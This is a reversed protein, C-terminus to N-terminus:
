GGGRGLKTLGTRELFRSLGGRRASAGAAADEPPLQAVVGGNEDLIQIRPVDEGDVHLTIRPRGQHDFLFLLSGDGANSCGLLVRRPVDEPRLEEVPIDPDPMENMSLQAAGLDGAYVTALTLAQVNPYDFSMSVGDRSATLGGKENQDEDNFIFWSGDPPGQRAEAPFERGQIFVPPKRSTLLFRQDGDRDELKFRTRVTLPGSSQATATSATAASAVLAAGAGGLVARRGVRTSSSSQSM